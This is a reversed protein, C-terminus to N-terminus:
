VASRGIRPATQLKATHAAIWDVTQDFPMPRAIGFGQVHGCGLQALLAHEGVTEVGEALTEVGLQDAMTLIAGIMRQQDPDRDAKTVFTRDIKIRAISFRRIAAISANGTGFDDLDIRCGLAGLARITQIVTGDPGSAVVTELIEVALRDPTLDFRDLQWRLRDALRPDRLEDTSFNVAVQPVDCGASDWAKLATLAHYLMVESLRNSLGAESLTSLIVEPLLLGLNPHQWRVLAEFGTVKGTDTSIQPQFWPQIQGNELAAVAEDRLHTRTRDRRQMDSSYARIASPGNAQAESLAGVSAEYWLAADNGDIRSRLCFGVSATVYISVGDVAVAEELATQLRGAIQLSLELDLQRVPDLCIAFRSDGVRAVADGDRLAGRIRDGSVRLVQDIAATGHLAGLDQLDDLEVLFCASRLATGNTQDFVQGLRMEFGNRLLLGTISDTRATTTPRGFAGACAYIVPIGLAAGLLASDGGIWFAALTAAPLFALAPPGTVVPHIHRFFRDLVGATSLPM